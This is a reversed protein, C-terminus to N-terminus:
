KEGRLQAIKTMAEHANCASCEGRMDCGNHKIKSLAELAVELAEALLPAATRCEAIFRADPSDILESTCYIPWLGNPCVEWPGPTAKESLERVRAILNRVDM